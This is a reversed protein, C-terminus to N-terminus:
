ANRRRRFALVGAGLGLLAISSPEPIFSVSGDTGLLFTGEYTGQGRTAPVAGALAGNTNGYLRYLDLAFEVEGIGGFSIAGMTSASGRQQNGGGFTSFAAGQTVLGAVSSVPNQNDIGSETTTFVGVTQSAGNRFATNMTFIGAAVTTMATNGSVNKGASNKLFIDGLSNRSSSVYSTRYPDGDVVIPADVTNAAAALGVFLNTNTQWGAGFTSSLTASLDVINLVPVADRGAAAGRYTTADGLNAYVVNGGGLEQFYMILDGDAFLTNAGHVSSALM